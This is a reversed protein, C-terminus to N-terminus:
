DLMRVDESTPTDEADPINPQMVSKRDTVHELGAAHGLEHVATREFLAYGAVLSITREGSCEGVRGAALSNARVIHIAHDAHEAWRPTAREWTHVANWIQAREEETFASDVDVSLSTCGLFFLGVGAFLSAKIKTM